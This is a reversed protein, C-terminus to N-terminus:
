NFSVYSIIRGSNRDTYTLSYDAYSKNVISSPTATVAVGNAVTATGLLYTPNYYREAPWVAGVAATTKVGQFFEGLETSRFVRGDAQTAPANWGVSLSSAQGGVLTAALQAASVSSFSVRPFLDTGVGVAVMQAFTYPLAGNVVTYTAIPTKGAEGNVAKWGDDNYIKFTYTGGAVFGINAFGQDAGAILAATAGTSTVNLTRGFLNGSAGLTCNTANSPVVSNANGALTSPTRCFRFTDGEKWNSFNGNKGALLPDSKLLRSSLLKISFPTVVGNIPFAGTGTVVAYTALGQPDSVGFRLGNFYTVANALPAGTARSYQEGRENRSQVFVDVVRQNGLFRADASNQPTACLGFTSGTVMTNGADKDVSGDTYNIDYLTDIERRSSGDSNTINREAVVRVNTRTSGIRYARSAVHQAINADINAISMAKTFGNSLYCGDELSM